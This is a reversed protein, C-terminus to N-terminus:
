ETVHVKRRRRRAAGAGAAGLGLLLMTAPEPIPDGPDGGGNGNYYWDSGGAVGIAQVHMALSGDGVLGGGNEVAALLDAESSLLDFTFTVSRLTSNVGNNVNDTDSAFGIAVHHNGWGFSGPVGPPTAGPDFVDGGVDARRYLVVSSAEQPREEIIDERYASGSRLACGSVLVSCVFALAIVSKSTRLM